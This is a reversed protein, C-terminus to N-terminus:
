EKVATLIGEKLWPYKPEPRSDFVDGKVTAALKLAGRYDNTSRLAKGNVSIVFRRDKM